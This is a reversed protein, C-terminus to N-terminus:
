RILQIIEGINDVEELNKVLEIVKEIKQKSMQKRGHKACDRFKNILDETTMPNKPSGKRHDERRIYQNGDKTKIEVIAPEVERSTLEPVIRPIIKQAIELVVPDKINEITFDSIGVKRKVVATAVTYPISFQADPITVPRRKRELPTCLDGTNEGVSINIEEINDPVINHELVLSM